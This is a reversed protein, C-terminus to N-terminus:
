DYEGVRYTSRIMAYFGVLCLGFGLWVEGSHFMVILGLFALVFGALLYILILTRFIM